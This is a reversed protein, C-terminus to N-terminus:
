AQILYTGGIRGGSCDLGASEALNSSVAGSFIYIYSYQYVHPQLTYFHWINIKIKNKERLGIDKHEPICPKSRLHPSDLSPPAITVMFLFYLSQKQFAVAKGKHM